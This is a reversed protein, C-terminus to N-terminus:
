GQNVLTWKSNWIPITVGNTSLAVPVTEWLLSRNMMVSFTIWM